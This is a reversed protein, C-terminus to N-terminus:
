SLIILVMRRDDNGSTNITWSFRKLCTTTTLQTRLVLQLVVETSQRSQQLAYLVTPLIAMDLHKHVANRMM